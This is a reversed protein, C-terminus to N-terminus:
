RRVEISSGQYHGNRDYYTTTRGNSVASGAFHGNRDTYSTTRGNQTSSGQYHGNRDYNSTQQALASGTLLLLIAFTRM